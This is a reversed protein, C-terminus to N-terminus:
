NASDDAAQALKAARDESNLADVLEDLAEGAIIRELKYLTLNIRHDTM